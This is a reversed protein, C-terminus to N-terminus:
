SVVQEILKESIKLNILLERLKAKEDRQKQKAAKNDIRQEIWWSVGNLSLKGQVNRPGEGNSDLIQFQRLTIGMLKASQEETLELEGPDSVAHFIHIAAETGALGGTQYSINLINDTNIHTDTNTNM